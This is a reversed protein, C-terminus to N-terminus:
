HVFFTADMLQKEGGPAKMFVQLSQGSGNQFYNVTFRHLGAALAKEGSKELDGHCGNNDAVFTDDIFIQSGDDSLIYFSYVGTVPVKIYGSFQVAYYEKPTSLLSLDPVSVVSTKGNSLQKFDPMLKWQGEYVTASLGAAASTKSIPAAPSQKTYRATATESSMGSAFYTTVKLLASNTLVLSDKYLPSNIGPQTGDLTYHITGQGNSTKIFINKRDIFLGAPSSLIPAPAFLFRATATADTQVGKNFTTARILAKSSIVFPQIYLTSQATPETGNTTYRIEAAPIAQITVAAPAFLYGGEPHIGLAKAGASVSKFMAAYGGSAKMVVLLSDDNTYATQTYLLQDPNTLDDQFVATKFNGKGLFQLPLMLRKEDGANIIGIYWDRGKRRAFAAVKGIRSQPLVITEDWVTPMSQILPAATNNLYANPDAPWCSLVSNFIVQLALQHARSTGYAKKSDFVGPTADAPGALMRTFPLIANHVPGQPNFTAWEQGYVAERTLENPFSRNYGTPKNAGHFDIMLHNNAADKLAAEYFKVQDIGEKDIFDIKIGAVGTHQMQEFFARRVTDEKLSTYAKWVWIGVKKNSAYQVLAKLSDLCNPWSSEWGADVMNYEFGLLAAKDIYMKELAMTTVNDHMFYSWVAKGPKIWSAHQLASDPAPNLNQIIDANVLGNLNDSIIAVRWPTVITDQIKWGSSDNVFAAHLTGSNDSQLSMGSYNYLAAETISVYISDTTQYTLPPGLKKVGLKSVPTEYYLGEYYFVNEQYWVTSGAPIKWSSAEGQVTATGKQPVVYRYAIGDEFVKIHLQYQMGSQQHTIPIIVQNYHNVATDHVGPSAYKENVSSYVPDNMQVSKGLNIQNVTIGLISNLIVTKGRYQVTYILMGASDASISTTIKGDPSQLTVAGNKKGCGTSTIVVIAAMALLGNMLKKLHPALYFFCHRLHISKELLYKNLM